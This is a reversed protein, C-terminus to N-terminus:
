VCLSKRKTPAKEFYREVASKEEKKCYRDGPSKPDFGIEELDDKSVAKVTANTGVPMFVPTEVDGHALHLIGCREKGTVSSHTIEFFDMNGVEM